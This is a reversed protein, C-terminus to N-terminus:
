VIRWLNRDEPWTPVPWFKEILWEFKHIMNPEEDNMWHKTAWENSKIVQKTKKYGHSFTGAQYHHGCKQLHAYWTKKNVKVQGGGLWYKLGVELQDQTFSGYTEPRDDLLGIHKMFYKRNAVWCSGQFTMLNDILIGGRGRRFWDQILLTYGYGVNSLSPFFLYHYDRVPRSENRSWTAEHLSYRRPIILWDEACDDTLVKDFGPAVACHADMKSLFKGTAVSIGANIAGRMGHCEDLTITKVRRDVRIPEEPIWGDLVPIIEVDTSNDLLSDITKNLYPEKHAPIIISLVM